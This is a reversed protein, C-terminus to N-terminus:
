PIEMSNRKGHKTALLYSSPILRLRLWQIPINKRKVPPIVSPLCWITPVVVNSPYEMIHYSGTVLPKYSLSLVPRSFRFPISFPVQTMLSWWAPIQTPFGWVLDPHKKPFDDFQPFKRDCSTHNGATTCILLPFRWFGTPFRCFDFLGFGLLRDDSDRNSLSQSNYLHNPFELYSRPEENLLIWYPIHMGRAGFRERWEGSSLEISPLGMM